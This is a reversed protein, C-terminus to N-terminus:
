RNTSWKKHIKSPRFRRRFETNSGKQGGFISKKKYKELNSNKSLSICSDGEDCFVNLVNQYMSFMLVFCWFLLFTVYFLKVYVIKVCFVVNVSFCNPVCFCMKIHKKLLLKIPFVIIRLYYTRGRDARTRYKNGKNM